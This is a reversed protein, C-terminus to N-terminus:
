LHVREERGPDNQVNHDPSGKSYQSRTAQHDKQVDNIQHWRDVVESAILQLESGMVIMIKGTLYEVSLNTLSEKGRVKKLNLTQEDGSIDSIM